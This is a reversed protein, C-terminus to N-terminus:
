QFYILLTGLVYPPLTTGQEARGQGERGQGARGKGAKGQGAEGHTPRSTVEDTEMDGIVVFLLCFEM